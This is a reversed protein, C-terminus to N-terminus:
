SRFSDANIEHKKLLQWLNKRDMQAQRAAAAVNGRHHRLLTALYESEFNDVVSKKLDRFSTTLDIGSNKKAGLSLHRVEIQGSDAVVVARRLLNELERVNGPFHHGMLLQLADRSISEVRGERNEKITSLLHAVLLPIDELRERLPPLNIPFINIRFYLDRRFTGNEVMEELNRNTAFVLRPNVNRDVVDGLRRVNQSELVRLLKVQMSVDLEGIEDLFLTGESAAEFVGMRDSSAGTFAGRKHGFLESEILKEPIAGCNVALFRSEIRPSGNHVLRAVLEKGTGSEGMVLVPTQTRAVM